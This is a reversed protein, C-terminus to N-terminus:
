TIDSPTLHGDSRLLSSWITSALTCPRTPVVDGHDRHCLETMPYKENACVLTGNQIGIQSYLNWRKYTDQLFLNRNMDNRSICKM